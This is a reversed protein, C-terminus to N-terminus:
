AREDEPYFAVGQKDEPLASGPALEEVADVFLEVGSGGQLRRDARIRRLAEEIASDPDRASVFRNVRFGYRGAEGDIVMELGTGRVIVKFDAM